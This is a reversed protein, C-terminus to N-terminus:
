CGLHRQPTIKVYNDPHYYIKGMEWVLDTSIHLFDLINGQRQIYLDEKAADDTATLSYLQREETKM